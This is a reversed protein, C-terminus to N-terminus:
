GIILNEKEIKQESIIHTKTLMKKANKVSKFILSSVPLHLISIKHDNQFNWDTQRDSQGVKQSFVSARSM